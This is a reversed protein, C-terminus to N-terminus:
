GCATGALAVRFTSQSSPNILRLRIREGRRVDLVAPDAAPRGNIVFADYKPGSAGMGMMMSMHGGEVMRPEALLVDDLVITYEREYEIHPRREEIILPGFLGRDLQLAVHSHYMYTGSPEAVYDYIFTRGPGIGEQTVGPVGDMGNPVPVGHWHVTTAEPLRNDIVVRLREGERVRIEEGPIRGNYTWTRWPGLPGLDVEAVGAVLRLERAGNGLPAAPAGMGLARDAAPDDCGSLFLTGPAALAALAGGGARLFARRTIGHAWDATDLRMWKGASSPRERWGRAIQARPKGHSCM